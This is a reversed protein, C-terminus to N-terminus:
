RGSDGGILEFVRLAQVALAAMLLKPVLLWFAGIGLAMFLAPDEVMSHNIGISVHLREVESPSLEGRRVGEQVVAGGYMLGFVVATVWLTASRAPLGLIGMLPRAARHLYRTWGLADLSELIVMIFMVILFVRGLLWATDLGWQRMVDLIPLEMSEGAAGAVSRSTDGLFLSLVLTTVVAAGIRIATIKAANIGSRHQIIGEVILNHAILSFVAMLTMQAVSFPLATMAAIAAYINVTLGSLLPLAAESPLNLWGMLPGLVLEARYVWGTWEILTVVLSVPVIIRSIWLFSRWGKGAGSAAGHRLQEGRGRGSNTSIFPM